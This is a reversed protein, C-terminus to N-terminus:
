EGTCMRTRSPTSAIGHARWLLSFLTLPQYRTQPLSESFLKQPQIFATAGPLCQSFPGTPHPTTERVNSVTLFEPTQTVFVTSQSSTATLFRYPPEDRITVTAASSPQLQVIREGSQSLTRVGTMSPIDVIETALQTLTRETFPPLAQAAALPVTFTYTPTTEAASIHASIGSTEAYRFFFALGPTNETFFRPVFAALTHPPIHASFLTTASMPLTTIAPLLLEGAHLTIRSPDIDFDIRANQTVIAGDTGSTLARFLASFITTDTPPAITSNSIITRHRQADVLVTAGFSELSRIDADNFMTDIIVTPSQTATDIWVSITNHSRALTDDVSLPIGPIIPIGNAISRLQAVTHSNRALHIATVYEPANLTSFQSLIRHTGIVTSWAACVIGVVRLVRWFTQRTLSQRLPINLAANM